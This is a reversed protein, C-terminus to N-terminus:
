CLPVRAVDGSSTSYDASVAVPANYDYKHSVEPDRLVTTPLNIKPYNLMIALEAYKPKGDEGVPKGKKVLVDDVWYSVRSMLLYRNAGYSILGKLPPAVFDRHPFIVPWGNPKGASVNIQNVKDVIIKRCLSSMPDPVVLGADSAAAAAAIRTELEVQTAKFTSSLPSDIWHSGGGSIANNIRTGAEVRQDRASDCFPNYLVAVSGISNRIDMLLDVRKKMHKKSDNSLGGATVTHDAADGAIAHVIQVSTGIVDVAAELALTDAAVIVDVHDTDRLDKAFQKLDDQNWAAHKYVFTTNTSFYGLTNMAEEFRHELNVTAFSPSEEPDCVSLFGIRPGPNKTWNERPM